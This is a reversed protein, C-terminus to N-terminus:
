CNFIGHFENDFDLRRLDCVLFRGKLRERRFRRRCRRIFNATLDVGTLDCGARAVHVAIRGAGCPADLVRSGKRLKLAAKVFAARVEAGKDGGGWFEEPFSLFWEPVKVDERM